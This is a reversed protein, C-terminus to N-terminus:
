EAEEGFWFLKFLSFGNGAMLVDVMRHLSNMYEQDFRNATPCDCDLRLVAKDDEVAPYFPYLRCITPRVEHITCRHEADLYECQDTILCFYGNEQQFHDPHGAAVIRAHEEPTVFIQGNCCPDVCKGCFPLFDFHPAPLGSGTETSHMKEQKLSAM